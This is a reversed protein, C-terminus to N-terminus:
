AAPKSLLSEADAQIEPFAHVFAAMGDGSFGVSGARKIKEILADIGKITQSQRQQDQGIVALKLSEVSRLHERLLEFEQRGEREAEAVIQRVQEAKAETAQQGYLVNERHQQLEPILRTQAAEM